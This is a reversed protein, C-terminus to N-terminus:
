CPQSPMDFLNLNYRPLKCVYHSIRSLSIRSLSVHAQRGRGHRRTEYRTDEAGAGTSRLVTQNNGKGASYDGFHKRQATQSHRKALDTTAAIGATM